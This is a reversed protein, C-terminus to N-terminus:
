HRVSLAGYFIAALGARTTQLAGGGRAPGVDARGDRVRVCAAVVETADAERVVIDFTGSGRYGRAMLARPVDEIRIMPGGVLQGLDHEVWDDGSGHPDPDILARELPDSDAIEVIIKAVQDRMASLAGLLARRSEDDATIMEEVHLRTPGYATDQQLTFAAYG